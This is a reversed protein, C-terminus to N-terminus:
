LGIFTHLPASQRREQLSVPIPNACGPTPCMVAAIKGTGVNQDGAETQIQVGCHACTGSRGEPVFLCPEEKGAVIIRVM